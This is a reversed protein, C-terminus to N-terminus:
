VFGASCRGDGAETGDEIPDIRLLAKEMVSFSDGDAVRERSRRAMAAHGETPSSAAIPASIWWQKAAPLRPAARRCTGRGCGVRHRRLANRWVPVALTGALKRTKGIPNEIVIEEKAAPPQRGILAAVWFGFRTGMGVKHFELRM